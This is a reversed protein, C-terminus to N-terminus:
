APLPMAVTLDLSAILTMETRPVAYSGTASMPRSLWRDFGETGYVIGAQRVNTLSSIALDSRGSSVAAPIMMEPPRPM